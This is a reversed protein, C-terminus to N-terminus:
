ATSFSVPSPLASGRCCLNTTFPASSSTKEAGPPTESEMLARDSNGKPSVMAIRALSVQVALARLARMRKSDAKMWHEDALHDLYGGRNNVEKEYIGCSSASLGLFVACAGVVLRM